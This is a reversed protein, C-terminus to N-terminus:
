SDIFATLTMEYSTFYLVIQVVFILIGLVSPILLWATYHVLWAFYFGQKEGFYDAVYDLPKNIKPNTYTLFGFILKWKKKVM